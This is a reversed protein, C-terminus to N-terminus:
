ASGRSLSPGDGTKSRESGIALTAMRLRRWTVMLRQRIGSCGVGGQESSESGLALFIRSCRIASRIGEAAPAEGTPQLPSNLSPSGSPRRRSISRRVVQDFRKMGFWHPRNEARATHRFGALGRLAFRPSRPRPVAGGARSSTMNRLWAWGESRLVGGLSCGPRTVTLATPTALRTRLYSTTPLCQAAVALARSPAASPLRNGSPIPGSATSVSAGFAM